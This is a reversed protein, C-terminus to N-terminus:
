KGDEIMLGLDFIDSLKELDEKKRENALNVFIYYEGVKYQWIRGPTVPRMEKSVLGYGSHEIDTKAVKSLGIKIM